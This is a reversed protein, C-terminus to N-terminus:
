LYEVLDLWLSNPLKRLSGRTKKDGLWLVMLKAQVKELLEQMFAAERDEKSFHLRKVRKLRGLFTRGSRDKRIFDYECRYLRVLLPFSPYLLLGEQLMAFNDKTVHSLAWVDECGMAYQLIQPVKQLRHKKMLMLSLNLICCQTISDRTNDLQPINLFPSYNVLCKVDRLVISITPITFERLLELVVFLAYKWIIGFYLGGVGLVGIHWALYLAFNVSTRTCHSCVKLVSVLYLAAGPVLVWKNRELGYVLGVYGCTFGIMRADRVDAKRDYSSLQVGLLLFGNAFDAYFPSFDLFAFFHSLLASYYYSFISIDTTLVLYPFFPQFQASHAFLMFVLFLSLSLQLSYYSLLLCCMCQPIGYFRLEYSLPPRALSYRLSLLGEWM